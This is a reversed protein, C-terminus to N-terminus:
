RFIAICTTVTVATGGETSTRVPLSTTTRGRIEFAVMLDAAAGLTGSNTLAMSVASYNVDIMATSFNVTYNGTGVLTVSSVAASADV